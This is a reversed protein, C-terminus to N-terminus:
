LCIHLPSHYHKLFLFFSYRTLLLYCRRLRIYCRPAILLIARSQISIQPHPSTNLVKLPALIEGLCGGDRDVGGEGEGLPAVLCSKKEKVNTTVGWIVGLWDQELEWRPWKQAFKKELCIIFHTWCCSLRLHTLKRELTLLKCSNGEGVLVILVSSGSFM